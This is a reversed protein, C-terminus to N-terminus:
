RMRRLKYAKVLSAVAKAPTKGLGAKANGEEGLWIELKSDEFWAEWELGDRSPPEVVVTVPMLFKRVVSKAPKAKM